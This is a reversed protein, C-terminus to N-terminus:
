KAFRAIAVYVGERARCSASRETGMGECIRRGKLMHMSVRRRMGGGASKASLQAM